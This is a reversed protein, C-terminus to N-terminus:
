FGRRGVIPRERGIPFDCTRASLWGALAICNLAAPKFGVGSDASDAAAGGTPAAAYRADCLTREIDRQHGYLKYEFLFYLPKTFLCSFLGFFTTSAYEPPRSVEMMM